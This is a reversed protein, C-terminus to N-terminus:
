AATGRPRLAHVGCGVITFLTSVIDVTGCMMLVPPSHYAAIPTLREVPVRRKETDPWTSAARCSRSRARCAREAVSM